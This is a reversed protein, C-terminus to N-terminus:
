PPLAIGAGGKSSSLLTVDVAVIQDALDAVPALAALLRATAFPSPRKKQGFSCGEFGRYCSRPTVTGTTEDVNYAILCAAIQAVAAVDDPDAAPGRWLEPYRGVADLVTLVNYWTAPWKVRKFQRGHGFMYPKESGRERWARLIVRAAPIAAQRTREKPLYSLARLGQLTVEPCVDSRRGPGRFRLRPDPRCPWARGQTTDALDDIMRDVAARVRPDSGRGFRLLVEAIGHADCLLASWAPEPLRKWAALSCFRDEDDQHAVMQDLLRMIRPDDQEGLGMEDLLNLLNPAFSPSDHGSLPLPVEWDPLRGLLDATVPDELTGAHAEQVNRDRDNCGLAHTLALWRAQPEGSDLIWPLPDAGLLATRVGPDGLGARVPEEKGRHVGEM